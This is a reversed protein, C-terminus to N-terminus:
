TGNVSNVLANIAPNDSHDSILDRGNGYILAVCGVKNGDGDRFHLVDCETSALADIIETKLACRKIPFEEGDYVSIVYGINLAKTVLATAIMKETTDM